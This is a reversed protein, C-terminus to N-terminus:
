QSHYEIMANCHDAMFRDLGGLKGSWQQTTTQVCYQVPDAENNDLALKANAMVDLTFQKNTKIHEKTALLGTHGSVLVDFDFDQLTDHTKLYLDVDPTVGFARYPSEAPRLLDVLMAVNNEPILILVDGKSHFDGLYHLEISKDGVNVTHQKGDFTETPVPRNPDNEQTLMDATKKHAIFVIDKFIQGATGTHDQHHHSYIMHTIPMSTVENIADLYKEGIPQPADVVVVGQETTVFMTQYGGSVLWFVDNAIEKVFYGKDEDVMVPSETYMWTDEFIGTTPKSEEKCEGQHKMTIHESNLMCMNGYTKGNVGCVPAYELTCAISPFSVSWGRKELKSVSDSNVCAPAGNSSKFILQKDETCIVNKASIGADGQQLPRLYPQIEGDMKCVKGPYAGPGCRDNLVCIQNLPTFGPACMDDHPIHRISLDKQSEEAFVLPMLGVLFIISVSVALISHNM